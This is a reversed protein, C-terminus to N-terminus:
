ENTLEMFLEDPTQIDPREWGLVQKTLDVCNWRPQREMNFGWLDRAVHHCWLPLPSSRKNELHEFDIPGVLDTSPLRVISSPQRYYHEEDFCDLPYWESGDASGNLKWGEIVIACHSFMPSVLGIWWHNASLPYRKWFWVEVTQQNM